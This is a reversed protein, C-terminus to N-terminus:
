LLEMLAAKSRAVKAYIRFLKSFWAGNLAIGAAAFGLQLRLVTAPLSGRHRWILATCFPFNIIRGVFFTVLLTRFNAMWLPHKEAGLRKLLNNTRLFMNSIEALYAISLYTCASSTQEDTGLISPFNAASQVIHHALRGAALHPVHGRALQVLVYCFDAIFYGISRGFFEQAEAKKDDRLQLVKEGGVWEISTSLRVSWVATYASHMMDLIDEAFQEDKTLWQLPLFTAVAVWFGRQLSSFQGPRVLGVMTTVREVQSETSLTGPISDVRPLKDDTALKDNTAPTDLSKTANATM